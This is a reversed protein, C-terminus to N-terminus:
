FRAAFMRGGRHVQKRGTREPRNAVPQRRCKWREGCV